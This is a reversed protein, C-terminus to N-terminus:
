NLFSTELTQFYKETNATLSTPIDEAFTKFERIFHAHDAYGSGYYIDSWKLASDSSRIQIYAERFRIIRQYMKPTTGFQDRFCRELNRRSVYLQKSISEVSIDGGTCRMLSCAESVYDRKNNFVKLGKLLHKETIKILQHVNFVGTMEDGMMKALHGPLLAADVVRNFIDRAPVHFLVPLSEPKLRIGFMFTPSRPKWYAPGTYLGTFYMSASDEYMGEKNGISCPQGNVQLILEVTGLPLCRQVPLEDVADHGTTYQWYCEVYPALSPGPLYEKYTM